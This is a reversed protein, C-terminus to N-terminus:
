LPRGDVEDLRYYRRYSRQGYVHGLARVFYRKGEGGHLDAGCYPCKDMQVGDRNDKFQKVWYQGGRNVAMPNKWLYVDEPMTECRHIVSVHYRYDITEDKGCPELEPTRLWRRYGEQITRVEREHKDEAEILDFLSIQDTTTM